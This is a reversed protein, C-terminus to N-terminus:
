IGHSFLESCISQEARELLQLPPPGLLRIMQAMHKARSYTRSETDLGDFLVQDALLEWLKQLLPSIDTVQQQALYGGGACYM